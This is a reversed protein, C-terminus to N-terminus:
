AEGVKMGPMGDGCDDCVVVMSVSAGDTFEDPVKQMIDTSFEFDDHRMLVLVTAREEGCRQCTKPLKFNAAFGFQGGTEVQM